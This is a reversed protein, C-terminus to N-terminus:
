IQLYIYVIIFIYDNVNKKIVTKNHNNNRVHWGVKKRFIFLYLSNTLTYFVIILLQVTYYIYVPLLVDTIVSKNNNNM